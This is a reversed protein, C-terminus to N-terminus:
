FVQRGSCPASPLSPACATVWWTVGFAEGIGLLLDGLVADPLSGLGGLTAASSGQIGVLYGSSPSVNGYYMGILIGALGGLISAIVFALSEVRRVPIGMQAAAERDQATARIAQGLKHRSLFLALVSMSVM